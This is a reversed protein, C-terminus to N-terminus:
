FNYTNQNLIIKNDSLDYIIENNNFHFDIYIQTYNSYFYYKIHISENIM